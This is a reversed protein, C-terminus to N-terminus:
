GPPLGPPTPTLHPSSEPTWVGAQLLRSEAQHTSTVHRDQARTQGKRNKRRKPSCVDEKSSLSVCVSSVPSMRWPDQPRGKSLAQCPDPPVSLVQGVRVTVGAGPGERVVLMSGLREAPLAKGLSRPPGDEWAGGQMRCLQPGAFDQVM